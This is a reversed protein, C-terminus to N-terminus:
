GNPVEKTQGTERHIFTIVDPLNKVILWNDPNMGVSLLIQKQQRTPKKGNKM